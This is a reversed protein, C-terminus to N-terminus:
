PLLHIELWQISIPDHPLICVKLLLAMLLPRTDHLQHVQLLQPVEVTQLCPSLKLSELTPEAGLIQLLQPVVSFLSREVAAYNTTSINKANCSIQKFKSIVARRTAHPNYIPTSPLDGQFNHSIKSKKKSKLSKRRKKKDSM